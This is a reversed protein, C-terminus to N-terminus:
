SAKKGSLLKALRAWESQPFNKLLHEWQQQAKSEDGKGRYLRGLDLYIKDEMLTKDPSSVLMELTHIADDVKGADEQLAALSMGLYFGFIKVKENRHFIQELEPLFKQVMESSTLKSSVQLALPVIVEQGSYKHAVDIFQDLAQMTLAKDAPVQGNEPNAADEGKPEAALYKQEFDFVAQAATQQQIFSWHRWGGVGAAFLFGGVILSLYFNKHHLISLGLETKKLTSKVQIETDPTATSSM